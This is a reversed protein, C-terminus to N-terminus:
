NFQKFKKYGHINKFEYKDTYFYDYNKNKNRSIYYCNDTKIKLQLSLCFFAADSLVINNSNIITDVYHLLPLNIFNNALEYFNHTSNYVNINPCIIIEKNQDIKLKHIIHYINFTDGSQRTENSIFHFKYKQLNKYLNISNDNNYLNAIHFYEWFINPTLNISEYFIFPLNNYDLKKKNLDAMGLLYIKDFQSTFIEFKNLDHGANPSIESPNNVSLIKISNDDKYIDIMNNKYINLCVITTEDYLTSIYRTLGINLINDGMGWHGMIFAKTERYGKQEKLESNTLNNIKKKVRFRNDNESIIKKCLENQTEISKTERFIDQMNWINENINMLINYFFNYNIKYNELKTNLIDYEKKVDNLREDKIKKMKIDLITLKDLGEGISVPLNIINAM